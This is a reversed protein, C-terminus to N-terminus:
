IKLDETMVFLPPTGITQCIERVNKIFDSTDGTDQYSKIHM